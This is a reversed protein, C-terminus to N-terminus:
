GTTAGRSGGRASCRTRSASPSHGARRAGIRDLQQDAGLRVGATLGPLAAVYVLWYTALNLFQAVALALWQGATLDGLLPWVDSYDAFQPIWFGFIAVIVVLAIVSQIIKGWPMKKKKPKGAEAGQSAASV